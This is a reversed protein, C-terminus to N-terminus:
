LMEMEQSLTKFPLRNINESAHRTVWSYLQLCLRLYKEENKEKCSERNDQAETAVIAGGTRKLINLGGIYRAFCVQM